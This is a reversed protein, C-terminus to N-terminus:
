SRVRSSGRPSSLGVLVTVAGPSLRAKVLAEGESGLSRSGFPRLPQKLPRVFGLQQQVNGAFLGWAAALVESCSTGLCWSVGDAGKRWSCRGARCGPFILPDGLVQPSGM